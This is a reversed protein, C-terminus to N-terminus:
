QITTRNDLIFSRFCANLRNYSAQISNLTQEDSHHCQHTLESISVKLQDIEIITQKLLADDLQGGMKLASAIGSLLMCLENLEGQTLNTNPKLLAEIQERHVHWYEARAIKGLTMESM